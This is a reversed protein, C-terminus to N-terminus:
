RKSSTVNSTRKYIYRFREGHVVGDKLQLAMSGDRYFDIKWESTTGHIDSDLYLVGHQENLRFGGSDIQETGSNSMYRGDHTFELTQSSSLTDSGSIEKAGRFVSSIEWTGPIYEFIKVPTAQETNVPVDKKEKDRSRNNTYDTDGRKQQASVSFSTAMLAAAM